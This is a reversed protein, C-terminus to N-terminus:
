TTTKAQVPHWGRGQKAVKGDQELGPMVRYLYNQKIGMRRALDPITIGPQRRIYILAEAARKGTGKRRGPPRKSPAIAASTSRVAPGTASSMAGRTRGPGGRHVPASQRVAPAGNPSDVSIGDLAVAAAELREYEAVVPALEAVRGNIEKYKEALFDPM